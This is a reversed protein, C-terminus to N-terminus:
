RYKRLVGIVAGQVKVRSADYVFPKLDDNAPQLRVRSGERYFKKLTAEEGDILAVVLDGERVRPRDECIVYDGDRIQEKIMSDGRVELVFTRNKGVMDEPIAIQEHQEIAEIPFGAAVRGILPVRIARVSMSKETLDLSRNANWVRTVFGKKQLNEVHKHVTAVSSLGFNEGIEVLSPSYGKEDVFRSIFDLVEKQRKTLIRPLEKAM